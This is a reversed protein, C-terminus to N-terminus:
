RNEIVLGPYMLIRKAASTRVSISSALRLSAFTSVKKDGCSAADCDTDPTHLARPWSSVPPSTRSDETFVETADGSTVM